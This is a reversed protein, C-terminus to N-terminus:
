GVELPFTLTQGKQSPPFRISKIASGLCFDLDTAAYEVQKIGVRTASGDPRITFKLDIRPPLTGKSAQEKIFCRKVNANSKVMVDIASVSPREPLTSSAASSTGSSAPATARGATASVEPTRTAPEESLIDDPLELEDIDDPVERRAPETKEPQYPAVAAERKTASDSRSRRSSSTTAAVDKKAVPEKAATDKKTPKAPEEKPATSADETNETAKPADVAQEPPIEIRATTNTAPQPLVTRNSLGGALIPILGLVFALSTAIFFSMLPKAPKRGRAGTLMMLTALLSGGSAIMLGFASTLYAPLPLLPAIALFVAGFFAVVVGMFAISMDGAPDHTATGPTHPVKAPMTPQTAESQRAQNPTKRQSKSPAPTATHLDVDAGHPVTQAPNRALPNTPPDDNFESRPPPPAPTPPVATVLTREDPDADVRPRPILMRHGCQRCTAKNVPKVLKEDPIKYVARCNDCIVKM